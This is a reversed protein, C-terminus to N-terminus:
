ACATMAPSESSATRTPVLHSEEYVHADPPAKSVPQATAPVIDDLGALSASIRAISLEESPRRCLVPDEQRHVLVDPLADEPLADLMMPQDPQAIHGSLAADQEHFPEQHIV